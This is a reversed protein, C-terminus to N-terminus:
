NTKATKHYTVQWPTNTERLNNWSATVVSGNESFQFSTGVFPSTDPGAFGLRFSDNSRNAYYGLFFRSEKESVIQSHFVRGDSMFILQELNGASYTGVLKPDTSLSACGALWLLGLLCFTAVCKMKYM